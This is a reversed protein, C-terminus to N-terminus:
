VRFYGVAVALIFVYASLTGLYSAVAMKRNKALLLAAGPMLGLATLLFFSWHAGADFLFSAPPVLLCVTVIAVIWRHITLESRGKKTLLVYYSPIGAERDSEVDKWDKPISLVTGGGLALLCPLLMSEKVYSGATGFTGILVALMATIGEAKYSLCFHEKLRVSPHHYVFGVICYLFLLFALMQNSDLQIILIIFVIFNGFIVDDLSTRTGRKAITDEKRDYYDNQIVIVLNIMMLLVMDGTAKWLDRRIWAAGCFVLLSHPMTHVVRSLSGWLKRGRLFAYGLLSIALWTISVWYANNVELSRILIVLGSCLQTAVYAAVLTGLARSISKSMALVFMGSGVIAIWIAASESVSQGKEFLSWTFKSFYIYRVSDRNQLLIDIIPPILGILLGVCVVNSVYKFPMSLAYRLIVSFLIFVVLYFTINIHFDRLLNHSYYREAILSVELLLRGTGVFLISLIYIFPHREKEIFSRVVNMKYGM